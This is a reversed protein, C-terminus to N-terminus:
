LAFLVKLVREVVDFAHRACSSVLALYAVHSLTLQRFGLEQGDSARVFGALVGSHTCGIADTSLLEGLVLDIEDAVEVDFLMPRCTVGPFSRALALGRRVDFRGAQCLVLLVIHKQLLGIGTQSLLLPRVGAELCLRLLRDVGELLVEDIEISRLRLM